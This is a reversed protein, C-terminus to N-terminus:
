VLCSKKGYESMSMNKDVVGKCYKSLLIKNYKNIDDAPHFKIIYTM